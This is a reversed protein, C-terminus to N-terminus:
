ELIFPISSCSLTSTLVYQYMDFAREFCFLPSNRPIEGSKELELGIPPAVGGNKPTGLPCKCVGAGRSRVQVPVLLTAEAVYCACRCLRWDTGLSWGRDTSGENLCASWTLM